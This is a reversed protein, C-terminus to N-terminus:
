DLRGSSSRALSTGMKPLEWLFLAGLGKSVGESNEPSRGLEEAFGFKLLAWASPGSSPFWCASSSGMRSALCPRWLPLVEQSASSFPLFAMPTKKGGVGAGVKGLRASSPVQSLRNGM